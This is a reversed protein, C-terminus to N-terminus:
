NGEQLEVASLQGAAVAICRRLIKRLLHQNEFSLDGDLYCKTCLDGLYYLEGKYEEGCENNIYKEVLLGFGKDLHSLVHDPLKIELKALVDFLNSSMSSPVIRNAM